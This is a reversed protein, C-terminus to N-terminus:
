QTALGGGWAGPQAAEQPELPLGHLDCLELLGRRKWGTAFLKEVMPRAEDVRGLNLLATAHLDLSEVIDSGNDSEQILAVADIWSARANPTDGLKQYVEGLGVLTSALAIRQESGITSEYRWREAIDLRGEYLDKAEEYRAQRIYLHALGNVTAAVRQDDPGHVRQLIDLAREFLPEATDYRGQEAHLVALGSLTVGVSPHGIGLTKEQVRLAREFLPGAEDHKGQDRYIVALGRLMWAMGPHDPGLSEESIALARMNLAEAEEYRGQTSCLL